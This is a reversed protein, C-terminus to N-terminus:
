KTKIKKDYESRIKNLYEFIKEIGIASIIFLLTQPMYAYRPMIEIFLYIGFYVLLIILFLLMDNSMEKRNTYISVLFLFIISYLIYKNFNLLVDHIYNWLISVGFVNIYKNYLYGLQWSLDSSMWFIKSKNFFLIPLKDISGLSRELIIEKSKDINDVSSYIEADEASYTGNTEYNLGCVFKWLPNKNVFGINSYGMNIILTNAITMILFYVGVLNIIKKFNSLLSEKKITLILYLVISFIFVIGEPRMINAIALLVAIVTYKIYPNKNKFKKAVILYIAILNLLSPLHQNTLVTNMFLSFPFILYLLSVIKAYKEKVFEKTLLYILVCILSTFICNCIKLFLVSNCIKLLLVMYMVHGMQYGWTNLYISETVYSLDGKLIDQATSYMVMFDSIIPTDFIIVVIVRIILAICFLLLPFKKFKIKTVLLCIVIITLIYLWFGVNEKCINLLFIIGFLILVTYILLKKFFDVM